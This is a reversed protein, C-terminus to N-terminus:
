KGSLCCLSYCKWLSSETKRLQSELGVIPMLSLILLLLNSRKDKDQGVPKEAEPNGQLDSPASVVLCHTGGDAWGLALNHNGCSCLRWCGQTKGECSKGALLEKMRKLDGHPLFSISNAVGALTLSWCVLLWVCAGQLLPKHPHPPLSRKSRHGIRRPGIAGM